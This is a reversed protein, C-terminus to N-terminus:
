ITVKFYNKFFPQNLEPQFYHKRKVWIFGDKKSIIAVDIPGGVTEREWSVKRKISTLQILTEALIALESKPARSIIQIIPYSFKRYRYDRFSDKFKNFLPVQLKFLKEKYQQKEECNLEIINDIIVNTQMELLQQIEIEIKEFLKPDAGELFSIIEDSEAFGDIISPWTGFDIRLENGPKYNLENTKTIEILEYTKFTPFIDENGFGAIVFSTKRFQEKSFNSVQMNLFERFDDCYGLLTDKYKDSLHQRYISIITEWPVGMFDNEAHIMIGVPHFKSLSFIKNASSFIKKGESTELTIASDAALAVAEKNMIIVEATM